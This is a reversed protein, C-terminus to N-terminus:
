LNNSPMAALVCPVLAVSIDLMVNFQHVRRLCAYMCVVYAVRCPNYYDKKVFVDNVMCVDLLVYKSTNSYFFNYNYKYLIIVYNILM